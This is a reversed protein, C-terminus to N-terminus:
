RHLHKAEDGILQQIRGNSWLVTTNGLLDWAFADAKHKTTNIQTARHNAVLPHNKPLRVRCHRFDEDEDYARFFDEIRYARASNLTVPTVVKPEITAVRVFNVGIAYAEKQDSLTVIKAGELQRNLEDKTLPYHIDDDIRQGSHDHYTYFYNTM